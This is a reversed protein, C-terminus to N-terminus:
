LCLIKLLPCNHGEVPLHLQIWGLIKLISKSPTNFLKKFIKICNIKEKLAFIVKKAKRKSEKSDLHLYLNRSFYPRVYLNPGYQVSILSQTTLLHPWFLYELTCIQVSKYLNSIQNLYKVWFKFCFIKM